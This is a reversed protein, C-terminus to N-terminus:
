KINDPDCRDHIMIGDNDDIGKQLREAEDKFDAFVNVTYGLNSFYPIFVHAANGAGAICVTGKSPAAPASAGGNLAALVRARDAEALTNFADKIETESAPGVADKL